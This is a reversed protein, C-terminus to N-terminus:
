RRRGYGGNNYGSPTFYAAIRYRSSGSDPDRLRIVATFGNRANPQQIVDVHGRGELVQITVNGDQRPLRNVGRIRGGNNRENSGMKIIAADNRGAQIRIERDVRGTWAFLEHQSSAARRDTPYRQSRYTQAGGTGAGVVVAVPVAALLIFRVVPTFKPKRM